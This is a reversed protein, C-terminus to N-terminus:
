DADHGSICVNLNQIKTQGHKWFFCFYSHHPAGFTRYLFCGQVIIEKEGNKVAEDVFSDKSSFNLTYAAGNGSTPWVVAGGQWTITGKCTALYASLRTEAVGRLDDEPTILFADVNYIFGLAPERGTNQYPIIIEAPKGIEPEASLSANTPGVWARQSAILNEKAADAASKAAGAQDAAAAVMKDTQASAAKMERLQGSLVVYQLIAAFFSFVAAIAIIITAWSTRDADRVLHKDYANRNGADAASEQDARQKKGVLSVFIRLKRPKIPSSSDGGQSGDVQHSM